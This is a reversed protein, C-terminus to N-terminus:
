YESLFKTLNSRLFDRIVLNSIGANNKTKTNKIKAKKCKKYIYAQCLTRPKSKLPSSSFILFREFNSISPSSLPNPFNTSQSILYLVDKLNNSTPSSSPGKDTM